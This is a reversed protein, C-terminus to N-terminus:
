IKDSIKTITINMASTDMTLDLIYPTVTQGNSDKFIRVQPRLCCEHYNKVVIGISKNSLEVCTGAPYPAVKKLFLATIKSDFLTGSGGAIYELVENTPIAAKYPRKSTMADYVDAIAIIRAFIYIKEGKIGDPYGRGDFREHHELISIYVKPSVSTYNHKIFKYGLTSHNKMIEYESDTLKEPKNLIDKDIFLKGIDHLLAALALKYLEEKKLGLSIGMVISLTAVNISHYLTYEDFIKLDIMNVLLDKNNLLETIISDIMCSLEHLKVHLDKLSIKDANESYYFFTKLKKLTDIKLKDSLINKIEIGKSISDEIYIGNYEIRKIATVYSPSLTIGAVALLQGNTGYINKGLVMGDKICPVPVFRM